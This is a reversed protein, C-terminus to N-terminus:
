LMIVSGTDSDESSLDDYEDGENDHDSLGSVNSGYSILSNETYESDDSDDDGDLVHLTPIITRRRRRQGDIINHPTIDSRNTSNYRIESEDEQYEEFDDEYEVENDDAIFRLLSEEAVDDIDSFTDNSGLSMERGADSDDYYELAEEVGSDYDSM